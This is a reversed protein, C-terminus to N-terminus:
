FAPMGPALPVHGYTQGPVFFIGNHHVVLALPDHMVSVYNRGCCDHLHRILWDRRDYVSRDSLSLQIDGPLDWNGIAYASRAAPSLDAPDQASQLPEVNIAQFSNVTEFSNIPGFPRFRGRPYVVFEGGDPREGRAFQSVHVVSVKDGLDVGVLDGKALTIMYAKDEAPRDPAADQSYIPGGDYNEAPPMDQLPGEGPMPGTALKPAAGIEPLQREFLTGKSRSRALPAMSIGDALEAGMLAGEPGVISRAHARSTRKMFLIRASAGGQDPAAAAHKDLANEVSSLDSGAQIADPRNRIPADPTAAAESMPATAGDIWRRFSPSVHEAWEVGPAPLGTVGPPPPTMAPPPTRSDGIDGTEGLPMGDGTVPDAPIETNLPQADVAAALVGALVAAIVGSGGWWAKM